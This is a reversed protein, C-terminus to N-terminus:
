QIYKQISIQSQHYIKIIRMNYIKYNELIKILRMNNIENM